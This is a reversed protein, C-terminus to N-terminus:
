NCHPLGQSGVLLFGQREALSHSLGSDPVSADIPTKGRRRCWNCFSGNRSTCARLPSGPANPCRARVTERFARSESSVSSLHWAHLNLTHIGGHSRHFHPQRLLRDWLLLALPPQTLLLLLDAFWAKEPWLPAVLTMSLDPTEKVRAVVRGVLHFPPFAYTDLNNWPHRFADELASQPDPILSCYLPLKANLHTAFLDLTPFGVQATSGESGSSLTVMGCGPSPQSPQTLVSPCQSPRAPVESGAPHGQDGNMPSTARDILLPRQLGHGGPQQRLRGGNLQRM